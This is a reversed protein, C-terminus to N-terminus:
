GDMLEDNYLLFLKILEYTKSNKVFAQLYGVLFRKKKYKKDM